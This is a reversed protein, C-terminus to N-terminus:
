LIGRLDKLSMRDAHLNALSDMPSNNMKKKSYEELGQLNTFYQQIYIINRLLVLLMYIHISGM